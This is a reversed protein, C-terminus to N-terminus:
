TASKSPYPCLCGNREKRKRQDVDTWFQARRRPLILSEFATRCSSSNTMIGLAAAQDTGQLLSPFRRRAEHESGLKLIYSARQCAGAKQHLFVTLPLRVKEGPSHWKQGSYYDSEVSLSSFIRGAAKTIITGTLCAICNIEGLRNSALLCSACQLMPLCFLPASIIINTVYIMLAPESIITKPKSATLKAEGVSLETRSVILEAGSIILKPKLVILQSSSVIIEPTWMLITFADIILHRRTAIKNLVSIIMSQVSIIVSAMTATKEFAM